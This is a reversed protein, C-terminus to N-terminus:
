ETSSSSIRESDSRTRTINSPRMTPSREGEVLSPSSPSRIAPTSSALSAASHTYGVCFQGGPHIVAQDRQDIERHREQDRTEDHEGDALTRQAGCAQQDLAGEAIAFADAERQIIGGIEDEGAQRDRDGKMAAQ